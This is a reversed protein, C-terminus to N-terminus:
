KVGSNGWSSRAQFRKLKWAARSDVSELCAAWIVGVSPTSMGKEMGKRM